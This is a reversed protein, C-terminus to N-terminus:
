AAELTKANEFAASWAQTFLLFLCLSEIWNPLQPFLFLGWALCGWVPASQRWRKFPQLKVYVKPEYGLAQLLSSRQLASPLFSEVEQQGQVLLGILLPFLCTIAISSEPFALVPCASLLCVRHKTPVKLITLLLFILGAFHFGAHSPTLPKTLVGVTSALSLSGVAVLGLRNPKLSRGFPSGTRLNTNM